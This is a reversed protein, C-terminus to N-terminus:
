YPLQLHGGGHPRHPEGAGQHRERHGRGDEAAAACGSQRQPRCPPVNQQLAVAPSKFLREDLVPMSLEQAEEANDPVTLMALKSLVGSCPLFLLMACVSSLTHINAISSKNMVDHWM